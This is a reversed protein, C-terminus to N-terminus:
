KCHEKAWSRMDGIWVKLKEVDIPSFYIGANLDNLGSIPVLTPKANANLTGDNSYDKLINYCRLNSSVANIGCVNADPRKVGACGILSFTLCLTTLRTM